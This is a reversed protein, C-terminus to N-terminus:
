LKGWLGRLLTEALIMAPLLAFYEARMRSYTPGRTRHFRLAGESRGANAQVIQLETDALGFTIAYEGALYSALDPVAEDPVDVDVDDVVYVHLKAMAALQQELSEDVTRYDEAPLDQGAQYVGLKKLIERVLFDRTAM